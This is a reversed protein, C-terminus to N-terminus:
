ITPKLKILWIFVASVLLSPAILTLFDFASLLGLGGSFLQYYFYVPLSLPCTFLIILLKKKSQSFGSNTVIISILLLTILFAISINLQVQYHEIIGKIANNLSGPHFGNTFFWVSLTFPVSLLFVLIWVKLSYILSSKISTIALGPKSVSKRIALDPNYIFIFLITTISYAVPLVYDHNYMMMAPIHQLLSFGLFIFAASVVGLSLKLSRKSLDYYCLLTIISLQSLAVWISVIFLYPAVYTIVIFGILEPIHYGPLLALLLLFTLPTLILGSLWVKLVYRIGQM